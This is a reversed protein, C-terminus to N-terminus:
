YDGGSIYKGFFKNLYDLNPNSWSLGYNELYSITFKSSVEVNALSKSLDSTIDNIIGLVADKMPIRSVFNNFEDNSVIEIHKGLNDLFEIIGSVSIRNNNFIHFVKGYSSDYMLLSTIINSCEDVPSLDISMNAFYQPIKQLKSFAVIRNLFANQTDNEQFKGDSLRATINGLRYISAILGDQMALYIHHEAEFKSKIYINDSYNQGIYLCHEDFSVMHSVNAVSTASVSTTSIHNMRINNTKCFNIVNDTGGVNVTYFLNKDGYHSVIAASHIVTDITDGLAKYEDDSLGFNALTVSGEIIKIRSDIYELIDTGFYFRLKDILRKKAKVNNKDRVLCYIVSNSKKILDYLIHVGLYGTSGTLLVSNLPIVSTDCTDSFNYYLNESLDHHVVNQQAQMRNSINRITKFEYIDQINVIYNKELLEITIKMLTLSDAGLELINDDIGIHEIHLSSELIGIFVKEFDSRPAVYPTKNELTLKMGLLKKRDVKGNSTLPISDLFIFYNPIMYTPVLKSIYDKLVDSSVSKNTVIYAILHCDKSDKKPLIVCKVVNPHNLFKTEIEGLEVRFGRIKVQNDIRGIYYLDGNKDLIASDASRYLLENPNYPNQVFKTENLEPRNLYGKCVGLGSVCMEGEIGPPMLNLNKDMVYVKLTPIPKGINSFPLNLDHEDLNKFTVHVTTETIGYMNILETNPYKNKWPKILNPKLAEGGFIIYRIMLNSDKKLLEMDLLNYFYTPTQNLVTVKEDRLLDLFRNPDKAVSETVLILEGGYLLCGYMEWVSFDFAVSHFMTWVDNENFDFLFHNNKILRVINKHMLMVGKPIGTSGSTYIIYILDDPENIFVPNELNGSYIEINSLDILLTNLSIDLDSVHANNTLFLKANSDTLMFDVRKQPYSLDIPLYCGGAKIIGLVGIIMEVSKNLRIGVVDNRKIGSDILYHALQNAKENLESYTIAYNGIKVAINNPTRLVQEEFLDVVTKDNPYNADTNNFNNLIEYKEEPTVIEINDISIDDNTIVQNIMHLIRKHLDSIEDEDYRDICYDYAVDICGTDNIDFLHIDLDNGCNGNFSWNTEYSIGNETNTNTVQYSLVINYLNPLYPNEKRLDELIYQYSYKQHRLIGLSDKAVTTVFSKFSPNEQLNIRFPAVNIFMGTTNKEKFNTRNLIPTGIVFDELNSVRGIYVSYLAMFFNFPSVKFRKCFANIKDMENKSINYTIRNANCSFADDSSKNSPITACEPVTEFVNDWYEKDKLFKDSSKYENESYIYNIYSLEDSTDVDENNLLCSYIRLIEKVTIALTWSDAFLHHINFIIGGTNDKYRFFRFEFLSSSYIDFVHSVMDKEISRVDELCSVDIVDISFPVYEELYQKVENNSLILRLRFSDNYKVLLNVAKELVTFDLKDYITTTGCINNIATGNFYQETYLISKQSSTLDLLEKNM